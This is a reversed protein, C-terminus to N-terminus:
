SFKTRPREQLVGDDHVDVKETYFAVLGAIKQSEPLPTRYAWVVGEHVAGGPLAVDWYSATGKYPCHTGVRVLAKTLRVRIAEPYVTYEGEFDGQMAFPTDFSSIHFPVAQPEPSAESQNAFPYLLLLAALTIVTLKM